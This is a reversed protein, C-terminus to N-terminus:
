FDIQQVGGAVTEFTAINCEHTGDELYPVCMAVQVSSGDEPVGGEIHVQQTVVGVVKAGASGGQVDYAVKGGAHM